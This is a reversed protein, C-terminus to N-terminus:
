LLLWMCLNRVVALGCGAVFRCHRVIWVRGALHTRLRNMADFWHEYPMWDNNEHCWILTRIADFWHEYPMLDTNERPRLLPSTLNFFHKWCQLAISFSRESLLFHDKGVCRVPTQWAAFDIKVCQGARRCWSSESSSAEGCVPNDPAGIRTVPFIWQVSPKPSLDEHHESVSKQVQASDLSEFPFFVLLPPVCHKLM